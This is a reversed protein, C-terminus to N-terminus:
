NLLAKIRSIDLILRGTNLGWSNKELYLFYQFTNPSVDKLQNMLVDNNRNEIFFTFYVAFYERENTKAYTRIVTAADQVETAYLHEHIMPFGLSYDLYHGFEHVVSLKDGVWIEKVQYDTAGGWTIGDRISFERAKEKDIDFSWDHAVFSQIIEQPILNLKDDFEDFYEMDEQQILSSPAIAGLEPQVVIQVFGKAFLMAILYIWVCSLAVLTRHETKSFMIGDGEM